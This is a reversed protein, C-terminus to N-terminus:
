FFVKAYPISIQVDLRLKIIIALCFPLYKRSRHRCRWVDQFLDKQMPKVVNVYVLMELFIDKFYYNNQM